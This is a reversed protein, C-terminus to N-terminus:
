REKKALDEQYGQAADSRLRSEAESKQLIQGNRGHVIVNRSIRHADDIAAQKTPYVSTKTGHHPFSCRGTGYERLNKREPWRWNGRWHRSTPFAPNQGPVPPHFFATTQM